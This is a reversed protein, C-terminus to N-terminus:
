TFTLFSGIKFLIVPFHRTQRRQLEEDQLFIKPFQCFTEDSELFRRSFKQAMKGTLSAPEVSVQLGRM